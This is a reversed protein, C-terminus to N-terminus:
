KGFLAEIRRVKVDLALDDDQILKRILYSRFQVEDLEDAFNEELFDFQEDLLQAEAKKKERLTSIEEKTLPLLKLDHEHYNMANERVRVYISNYGTVTLNTGMPIQHGSTAGVVKVRQGATFAM